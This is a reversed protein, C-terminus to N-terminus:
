SAMELKLQESCTNSDKLFIGCAIFNMEWEWSLYVKPNIPGM